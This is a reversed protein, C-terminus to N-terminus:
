IKRRPYLKIVKILMELTTRNKHLFSILADYLKRDKIQEMGVLDRHMKVHQHM